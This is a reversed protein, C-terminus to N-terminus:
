RDEVVPEAKKLELKLNRVRKFRPMFRLEELAGVTVTCHNFNIAMVAPMHWVAGLCMDSVERNGKVDVLVLAPHYTLYRIAQNDIHARRAVLRRLLPLKAIHKMAQGASPTESVDLWDLVKLCALNHYGDATIHHCRRLHLRKLKPLSPLLSLTQGTIRTSDLYLRKLLKLSPLGAM